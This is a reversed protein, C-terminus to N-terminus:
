WLGERQYEGLLRVLILLNTVCAEGSMSTDRLPPPLRTLPTHREVGDQMAEM